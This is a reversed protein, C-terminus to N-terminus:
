NKSRGFFLWDSEKATRGYMQCLAQFAYPLEKRIWDYVVARLLPEVAGSGYFRGGFGLYDHRPRFMSRLDFHLQGVYDTKDLRTRWVGDCFVEFQFHPDRTIRTDIERSSRAVVRVGLASPEPECLYVTAYTGQELEVAAVGVLSEQSLTPFHMALSPFNYEVLRKAISFGVSLLREVDGQIDASFLELPLHGNRSWDVAMSLPHAEIIQVGSSDLIEIASHLRREM